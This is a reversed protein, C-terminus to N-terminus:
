REGREAAIRELWTIAHTRSRPRRLGGDAFSEADPWGTALITATAGEVDFPTRRFEVDPGLLAWFAAAEGEFPMGVSGPNIWRVDDVRRDFQMHTHGAVITAENRGDFSRRVHEEPTSPTVIQVDSCPTAHCFLVRGLGDVDLVEHEPLAGLVARQDDSLREVTWELAEAATPSVARPDLDRIARETNGRVWRVPVELGRVRELTEAPQPGGVIDGGLVVADVPVDELEALVADLADLMGHVDYLAAVRV